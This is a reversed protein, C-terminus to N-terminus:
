SRSSLVEAAIMRPDAVDCSVATLRDGAERLLAQLGTSADPNRLLAHVQWGAELLQRVFELGLGRSAGTVVVRRADKM